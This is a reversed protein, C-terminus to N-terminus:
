FRRMGLFACRRNNAFRVRVYSRGRFGGVVVARRGVRHIRPADVGFRWAKRVARRPRCRGRHGRREYRGHRGARREGRMRRDGRARRRSREGAQALVLAGSETSSPSATAPSVPALPASTASVTAAHAPACLTALSVACAALVGRASARERRPPTFTPDTM